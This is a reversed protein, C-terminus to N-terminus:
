SAAVICSKSDQDSPPSHDISSQTATINVSQLTVNAPHTRVGSWHQCSMLKRFGEVIVEGLSVQRNAVDSKWIVVAHKAFPSDRGDSASCKRIM